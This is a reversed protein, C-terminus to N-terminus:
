GRWISAGGAWGPTSPWPRPRSTTSERHRRSGAAGPAPEGPVSEPPGSEQGALGGDAQLRDWAGYVARTDMGFPLLFLTFARAQYPLPAVDEGIGRVMARGGHLCFPVDAGLAAARRPDTVGSWRLIAAADASGGGLGAGPPIRKVLEVRAKRGAARLAQVVLNDRGPDVGGSRWPAVGGGPAAGNPAFQEDIVLGDGESVVLTDALDLTVMEAELLHFGDPRTGTVRLSVTLKAPATLRVPAGSSM